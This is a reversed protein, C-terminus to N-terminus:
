PVLQLAVANSALDLAPVSVYAHHLTLGVWSAPGGSPLVFHATAGGGVDTWQLADALPPTGPNTLGLLFYADVQLPLVQGGPLPIGPATGSASGLVFLQQMGFAAGARLDFAQTGGAAVSLTSPAAVLPPCGGAPLEHPYAAGAQAVLGDAHPAGLLAHEAALAASSGFGAGGDYPRLRDELQWPGSGQAFLFAEGAPGHGPAGVLLRGARHDLASGFHGGSQAAGGAFLKATWSWASGNAQFAYVAGREFQFTSESPAGVYARGADLELAFGFRDGPFGDPSEIRAAYAWGGAGREYVYVSGTFPQPSFSSEAHVLALDGEIAVADGFRAWPEADPAVLVAVQAWGAGGDEYVHVAGSGSGASAAWPAGVLARDGHLAVAYGAGDGGQGGAPTPFPSESWGQADREYLHARGPTSGVAFDAPAGVLLRSGHLALSHGFRAGPSLNSPALTQTEAWSPGGVARVRVAGGSGTGSEGLFAEDANLAVSRAFEAASQPAPSDVRDLWCQASPAGSVLLPLAALLPLPKM